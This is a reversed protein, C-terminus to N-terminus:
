FDKSNKCDNFQHETVSMVVSRAECVHRRAGAEGEGVMQEMRVGVEASTSGVWTVHGVLVIDRDCRIIINM